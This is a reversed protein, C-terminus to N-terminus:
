FIFRAVFSTRLSIYEFDNVLHLLLRGFTNRFTSTESFYIKKSKKSEYTSIKLSMQFCFHYRESKTFNCGQPPLGQFIGTFFGHDLGAVWRESAPVPPARCFFTNRFIECFGCSFVQALTEKKIFNCAVVKNLLLSQCLHKGRFKAFNKLLGKECFLEPRSSRLKGSLNRIKIFEKEDTIRLMCKLHLVCCVTNIVIYM